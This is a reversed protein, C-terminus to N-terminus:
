DLQYSEEGSAQYALLDDRSGDCIYKNESEHLLSENEQTNLKTCLYLKKQSERIARRITM